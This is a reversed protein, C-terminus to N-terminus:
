IWRAPSPVGSVPCRDVQHGEIRLFFRSEACRRLRCCGQCEGNRLMPLLNAGFPNPACEVRDAQHDFFGLDYHMFSVLWLQQRM